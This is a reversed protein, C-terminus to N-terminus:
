RGCVRGPDRPYERIQLDKPFQRISEVARALLQSIQNAETIVKNKCRVQKVFVPVNAEHCQKILSEIWVLDCPRAGPGSEAGIIIWDISLSEREAFFEGARRHPWKIAIPGLLPELCLFHVAARAKVIEPARQNHREQDETTTGVWLNRLPWRVPLDCLGRDSQDCNAKYWENAVAFQRETFDKSIADSLLMLPDLYRERTGVHIIRDIREALEAPRKTLIQFTHWPQLMIYGMVKVFGPFPVGDYALDGMSNVFVMKGKGPVHMVDLQEGVKGTWGKEDVVGQYAKHGMAKLRRAMREAFCNKCGKSVKRCGPFPNITWDTWKIRTGGM